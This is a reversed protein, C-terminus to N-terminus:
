IIDFIYLLPQEEKKYEDVLRAKIDQNERVPASLYFHNEAVKQARQHDVIKGFSLSSLVCCLFVVFMKITIVRM